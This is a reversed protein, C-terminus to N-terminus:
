GEKFIPIFFTFTSGEGYVSDVYIKGQHADIIEKCLTLGLGRGEAIIEGPDGKSARYFRDFIHSVDEPKIGIGSDSLSVVLNEQADDVVFTLNMSASGEPSYKIANSVLNSIVQNIREKDMIVYHDGLNVNDYNVNVQFGSSIIDKVNREVLEPVVSRASYAQFDFTFKHTELKSLQDLDDVL